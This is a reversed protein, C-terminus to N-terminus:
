KKQMKDIKYKKYLIYKCSNLNMIMIICIIFSLYLIINM